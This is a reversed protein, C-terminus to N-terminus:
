TCFAFALSAKSALLGQSFVFWGVFVLFTGLQRTEPDTAVDGGTFVIFRLNVL